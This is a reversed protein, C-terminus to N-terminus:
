FPIGDGSPELLGRLADAEALEARVVELDLGDVVTGETLLDLLEAEAFAFAEEGLTPLRGLGKRARKGAQANRWATTRAGDKLVYAGARWEVLKRWRGDLVELRARAADLDPGARKVLQRVAQRSVGLERAVEAFSSEACAALVALRYGREAAGRAEVASRLADLTL